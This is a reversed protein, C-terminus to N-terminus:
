KRSTVDDGVWDNLEQEQEEVLELLLQSRLDAKRAGSEPDQNRVYRPEDGASRNCHSQHQLRRRLPQGGEADRHAAEHIHGNENGNAHAKTRNDIQERGNKIEM